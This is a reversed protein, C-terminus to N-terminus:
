APEVIDGEGKGDESVEIACEEPTLMALGPHKRLIWVSKKRAWIGVLSIIKNAPLVLMTEKVSDEWKGELCNM